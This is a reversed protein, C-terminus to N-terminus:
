HILGVPMTIQSAAQQNQSAFGTQSLREELQKKLEDSFGADQMLKRDSKSGTDITEEAMEALRRSMAGEQEKPPSADERASSDPPTPSKDQSLASAASFPRLDGIRRFKLPEDVATPSGRASRAQGSPERARLCRACTWLKTATRSM